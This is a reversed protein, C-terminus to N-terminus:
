MYVFILSHTPNLTGSSVYYTMEPVLYICLKYKIKDCKYCASRNLKQHLQALTSSKGLILFWWWEDDDDDYSKNWAAHGM